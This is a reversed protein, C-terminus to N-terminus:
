TQSSRVIKQFTWRGARFLQRLSGCLGDWATWVGLCILANIVNFSKCCKLAETIQAVAATLDRKGIYYGAYRLGTLAYHERAKRSVEAQRNKPLYKEAMVIAERTDAINAATRVLRSTDSSGHVRYCALAAPEYWVPYHAAIRKWMEWDAAHNLSPHFGGLTEYVIRRVVISPFQILQEVGIREIWAPIVGASPELLRSLDLWHGGEDIRIYRCFAAGLSCEARASGQKLAAYFGAMVTDDGHLIHVWHGRARQICTNFNATAGVNHPQRFFDVRGKGLRRVVEEPDDKTSCDDIVEIQM